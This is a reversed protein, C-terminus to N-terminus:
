AWPHEREVRKEQALMHRALRVLAPLDNVVSDPEHPHSHTGPFIRDLWTRDWGAGNYFIATVGAEKAAVIDTTSDGVYWCHQDVPRDINELARVILDPAPTRRGVEDGCAMTDFLDSWGVGDVAALEREMFERQRNSLLGLRFGLARLRELHERAEPELARVDRMYRRYAQDFAQHALRKAEDDPGFLVEFIDTRSIKRQAPIKPHLTGYDRVYKVLKADELTRSDEPPVLRDKLGLEGLKPLVEDVALYMADHTDVLTAHWDFVIVRAAAPPLHLISMAKLM